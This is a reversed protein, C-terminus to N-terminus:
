IWPVSLLVQILETCCGERELWAGPLHAQTLSPFLRPLDQMFSYSDDVLLLSDGMRLIAARPFAKSLQCLQDLTIGKIPRLEAPVLRAAEQFPTSVQRLSLLDLIPLGGAIKSLLDPQLLALLLSGDSPGALLLM